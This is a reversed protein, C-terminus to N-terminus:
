RRWNDPATKDQEVDSVWEHLTLDKEAFPTSLNETAHVIDALLQAVYKEM